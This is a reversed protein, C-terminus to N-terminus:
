RRAGAEGTEESHPEAKRGRAPKACQSSHSAIFARRRISSASRM